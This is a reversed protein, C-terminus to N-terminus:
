PCSIWLECFVFGQQDILMFLHKVKSIILARGWVVCFIHPFPVSM